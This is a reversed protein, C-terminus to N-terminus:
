ILGETDRRLREGARMIAAVLALCLGAALPWFPLTVRMGLPSPWGHQALWAEPLTDDGALEAEPMSASWGHVFFLEHSAVSEGIGTLLAALLGGVVLFAGANLLSQPTVRFPDHDRLSRALRLVISAVTISIAANIAIAAAFLGRAPWSMGTALVTARDLGGEAIIASAPELTLRPDVVPTFPAIPVSVRVSEAFLTTGILLLTMAATVAIWIWCLVVAVRPLRADGTNVAWVFLGLLGLPVIVVIMAFALGPILSM